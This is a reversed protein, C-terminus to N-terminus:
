VLEKISTSGTTARLDNDAKRWRIGVQNAQLNDSQRGQQVHIEQADEVVDPHLAWCILFLYRFRVIGERLRPHTSDANSAIEQSHLSRLAGCFVDSEHPEKM